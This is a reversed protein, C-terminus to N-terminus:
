ISKEQSTKRENGPMEGPSLLRAIFWLVIGLGALGAVLAGTIAFVLLVSLIVIAAIITVEM